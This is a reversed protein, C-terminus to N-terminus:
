DSDSYSLLLREEECDEDNIVSSLAKVAGIEQAKAMNLNTILKEEDSETESETDSETESETDSETESETESETDSETESETDSETDSETESETDSETESETESLENIADIAEDTSVEPILSMSDCRSSDWAKLDAKYKNQWPEKEIDSMNQWIKGGISAVDSPIANLHEAMYKKRFSVNLWTLFPTVPRHPIDNSMVCKEHMSLDIENRSSIQSEARLDNVEARLLTMEKRMSVVETQLTKVLHALKENTFAM